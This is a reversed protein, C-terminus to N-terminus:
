PDTSNRGGAGRHPAQEPHPRRAFEVATRSGPDGAAIPDNAAFAPFESRLSVCGIRRSAERIRWADVVEKVRRAGIGMPEIPLMYCSDAILLQPILSSFSRTKKM